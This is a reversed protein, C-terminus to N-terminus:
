EAFRQNLEAMQELRYPLYENWDSTAELVRDDDLKRRLEEYGRLQVRRVFDVFADPDAIRAPVAQGDLKIRVPGVSLFSLIVNLGDNGTFDSLPLSSSFATSNCAPNLHHVIMFREVRYEDDDNWIVYGASETPILGDCVDCYWPGEVPGDLKAM